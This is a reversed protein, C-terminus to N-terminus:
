RLSSMATFAIAGKQCQYWKLIWKDSIFLCIFFDTGNDLYKKPRARVAAQLYRGGESRIIGMAALREDRERVGDYVAGLRDGAINPPYGATNPPLGSPIPSAAGGKPDAEVKDELAPSEGTSPPSGPPTDPPIATEVTPAGSEDGSPVATGPPRNIWPPIQGPHAGSATLEDFARPSRRASAIMSAIKHQPVEFKVALEKTDIEEPQWYSM